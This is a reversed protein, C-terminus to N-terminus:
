GSFYLGSGKLTFEEFDLVMDLTESNPFNVVCRGNDIEKASWEWDGQFSKKLAAELETRTVMGKKVQVLGMTNAM